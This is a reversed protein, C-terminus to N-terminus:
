STKRCIVVVAAAVLNFGAVTYACGAIGLAPIVVLGTAMGAVTAGVLDAWYSLSGVASAALGRRLMQTSVSAYTTGGLLGTLFAIALFALDAAGGPARTPGTTLLRLSVVALLPPLSLAAVSPPFRLRSENPRRGKLAVWASALGMGAMFSAVLAAIKTYINGCAIQLALITLIQTAMTVLGMSYLALLDPFLARGNAHSRASVLAVGLGIATMALIASMVTLRSAFSSIVSRGSLQKEWISMAVSLAVPELDSNTRASQHAAVVSDIQAIKSPSLRSHLVFQNVFAAEIGRRALREAARRTESRLDLGPSALVHVYDGPLITVMPFAVRCANAITGVLAAVRPGVAAGEAAFKVALLGNRDLIREASRFFEVTYYRNTQLSNPTGVNIIVADYMNRTAAVYHRADDYILSVATTATGEIWGPPAFHKATSILIPDIEVCDITTVSRHKAIEGVIGTGAGGVVLVRHPEPHHLLPIHAAEEAYLPDPITFALAGTEFFDHIGDRAAVVLNGYRSEVTREVRLPQWQVQRTAKDVTRGAAAVLGLVLAAAAILGARLHRRGGPRKLSLGFAAAAGLMGALAAITIPNVAELLYAGLLLGGIASGLGELGYVFAAPRALHALRAEDVLAVFLAGLAAASPFAGCAALVVMTGPGAVEGFTSVWAHVLRVSVVQFPAALGAIIFLGLTAAGSERVLRRFALSGAAVFLIWAAVTVAVSLENGTLAVLQERIVAVQM